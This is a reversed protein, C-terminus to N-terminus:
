LTANKVITDHAATVVPDFIKSWRQLREKLQTISTSNRPKIAEFRVIKAKQNIKADIQGSTAAEVVVREVATDSSYDSNNIIGRIEDYTYTQDSKCHTALM